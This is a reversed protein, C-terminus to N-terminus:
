TLAEGTTLLRRQTKWKRSHKQRVKLVKAEEAFLEYTLAGVLVGSTGGPTTIRLDYTGDELAPTHAFIRTRTLAFLGLDGDDGKPDNLEDAEFAYCTGVVVAGDLVEILAPKIFGTGLVRIVDGGRRAVLGPSVGILTPTPAAAGTGWPTFGWEGSSGWSM